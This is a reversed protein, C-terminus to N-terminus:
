RTGPAGDADRLQLRCSTERSDHQQKPFVCRPQNPWPHVLADPHIPNTICNHERVEKAKERESEDAEVVFCEFCEFGAMRM